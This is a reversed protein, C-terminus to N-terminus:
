ASIVTKIWILRRHRIRHVQVKVMEQDNCMGLQAGGGRRWLTLEFGTDALPVAQIPEDDEIVLVVPVIQDLARGGRACEM